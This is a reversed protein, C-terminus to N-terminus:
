EACTTFVHKVLASKLLQDYVQAVQLAHPNGLIVGVEFNINLGHGTMNASGLVVRSRDTVAVKAHLLGSQHNASYAKFVTGLLEAEKRLSEVAQSQPSGINHLEHGILCVHVGRHLAALLHSQISNIGSSAIFPSMLLLEREASQISAVLGDLYSIGDRELEPPLTWLLQIDLPSAQQALYAALARPQLRGGELSRTANLDAWLRDRGGEGLLNDAWALDHFATPQGAREWLAASLLILQRDTM